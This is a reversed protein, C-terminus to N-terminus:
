NIHKLSSCGKENGEYCAITFYEKTKEIEAPSLQGKQMSIEAAEFCSDALGAQECAAKFYPLAKEGGLSAKLLEGVKQCDSFSRLSCSRAFLKAAQMYSDASTLLINGGMRCAAKDGYECLKILRDVELNSFESDELVDKVKDSPSPSPAKPETRKILKKKGKKDLKSDFGKRVNVSEHLDYEEDSDDDEDYQSALTRGFMNASPTPNTFYWSSLGMCTLFFVAYNRM